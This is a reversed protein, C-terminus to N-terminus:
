EITYTWFLHITQGSSAAGNKGGGFHIYSPGAGTFLPATANAYLNDTTEVTGNQTAWSNGSSAYMCVYDNAISATYYGLDAKGLAWLKFTQGAEIYLSYYFTVSNNPVAAEKTVTNRLGGPAQIEGAVRVDGAVELKESPSTTGIGVNGSTNIIGGGGSTWDFSNGRLHIADGSSAGLYTNASYLYTNASSSQVYFQDPTAIRNAADRYFYADTSGIYTYGTVLSNGAVHLGQSPSSTGIGVNGGNLWSNGSTHLRVNETGAENAMHFVGHNTGRVSEDWNFYYQGTTADIHYNGNSPRIFVFQGATYSNLKVSGVNGASNQGLELSVSGSLSTWTWNSVSTNAVQLKAGPNTTGIGVNGNEQVRFLENANSGKIAQNNVIAFYKNTNNDNADIHFILEEPAMVSLGYNNDEFVGLDGRNRFRLEYNADLNISGGAVHLKQSPGTTGIGVYGSNTIHLRTTNNTIFGLAYNDTNGLTRNEGGAEGGNAFDGKNMRSWASGNYYYFGSTNDTQYIMLGTTPSGPSGIINRQAETMRPILIGKSTSEVELMADDAPVGGSANIMVGQSFGSISLMLFLASFFITRLNM